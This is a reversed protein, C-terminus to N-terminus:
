VISPDVYKFSKSHERYYISTQDPQKKFHTIEEEIGKAEEFIESWDFDLM